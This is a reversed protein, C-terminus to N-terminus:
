YFVFYIKRCQQCVARLNCAWKESMKHVSGPWFRGKLSAVTHSGLANAVTKPRKHQSPLEFLPKPPAYFPMFLMTYPYYKAPSLGSQPRIITVSFAPM